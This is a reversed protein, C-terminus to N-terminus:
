EEERADRPQPVGADQDGRAEGGAQEGGHGDQRGPFGPAARPRSVHSFLSELDDIFTAAVCSVGGCAGSAPHARRTRPGKWTVPTKQNRKWRQPTPTRGDHPTLTMTARKVVKKQSTSRRMRAATAALRSATSPGQPQSSRWSRM